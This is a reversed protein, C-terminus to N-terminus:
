DIKRLNLRRMVVRHLVSVFVYASCMFVVRHLMSVSVSASCLLSVNVHFSMSIVNVHTSTTNTPVVM